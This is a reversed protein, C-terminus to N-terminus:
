SNNDLDPNNKFVNPKPFLKPTSQMPNQSIVRNKASLVIFHMSKRFTM